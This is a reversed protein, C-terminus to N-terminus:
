LLTQAHPSLITVVSCGCPLICYLYMVWMDASFELTQLWLRIGLCGGHESSCPILLFEAILSWCYCWSDACIVFSCFADRLSLTGHLAFMARLRCRLRWSSAASATFDERVFLWWAGGGCSHKPVDHARGIRLSPRV